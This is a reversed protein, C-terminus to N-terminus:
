GESLESQPNLLSLRGALAQRLLPRGGGRPNEAM